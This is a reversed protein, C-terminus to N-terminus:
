PTDTLVVAVQFTSTVHTIAGGVRNFTIRGRQATASRVSSQRFETLAASGVFSAGDDEFVCAIERDPIGGATAYQFSYFMASGVILTAAPSWTVPMDATLSVPLTVPAPTFAEATPAVVTRAPFGGAAGPITITINEGPTFPMSQGPPLAYTTQAGDTHKILAASVDDFAATVTEGADLYTFPQTNSQPTLNRVICGELGVVSSALSLGRGEIFFATPTAIYVDGSRGTPLSILAVQTSEVELSRCASFLAVAVFPALLSLRSRSM